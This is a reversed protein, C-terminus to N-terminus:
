GRGLRSLGSRIVHIPRLILGSLFVAVFTAVGLALLATVLASGLASDLDSAILLTSVGVRISGFQEGGLLLPKQVELTQGGRAYIARLQAIPSEALLDALQRAPALQGVANNIAVHALTYGSGIFVSAAYLAPMSPMLGALLGAAALMVMGLAAPRAYGFRDAWRGMHISLVMPVVMLLSMLIGIALPSAKLAVAQLTLTFRNGAFAVHGLVLLCIL